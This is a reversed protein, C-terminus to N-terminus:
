AYIGNGHFTKRQTYKNSYFFRTIAAAGILSLLGVILIDRVYNSFVQNNAAGLSVITEVQYNQLYIEVEEGPQLSSLSYLINGRKVQGQKNVLFERVGQNTDISLTNPGSKVVKGTVFVKDSTIQDGIINESQQYAPIPSVVQDVNNNVGNNAYSISAYLSFLITFVILSLFVRIKM